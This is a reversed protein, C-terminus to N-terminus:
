GHNVEVTPGVAAGPLNWFIDMPELSPGLIELQQANIPCEDLRDTGCRLCVDRAVGDDQVAAVIFRELGRVLARRDAPSLREVVSTFRELRDQRLGAIVARGHPTLDVEAQRRDSVGETRTVLSKEALRTILKTSAPYSVSLGEAIHGVTCRGHSYLYRLALYQSHTLDVEAIREIPRLTLSKVVTESFLDALMQLYPVTPEVRDAARRESEM